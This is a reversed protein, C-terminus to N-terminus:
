LSLCLSVSLSLSYESYKELLSLDSLTPHFTHTHTYRHRLRHIVVHANRERYLGLAFFKINDPSVKFVEMEAGCGSCSSIIRKINMRSPRPQPLDPLAVKCAELLLPVWWFVPGLQDDEIDSSSSRCAEADELQQIEEQSQSLCEGIEAQWSSAAVIVM